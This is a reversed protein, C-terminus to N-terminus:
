QAGGVWGILRRITWGTTIIMRLQCLCLCRQQSPQTTALTSTTDHLTLTQTNRLTLHQRPSFTVTPRSKLSHPHQRQLHLTAGGAASAGGTTLMTEAASTAWSSTKPQTPSNRDKKPECNALFVPSLIIWYSQKATVSLLPDPVKLPETKQKTKTKIAIMSLFSVFPFNETLFSISPFM